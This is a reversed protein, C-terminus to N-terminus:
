AFPTGFNEASAVESLSKRKKIGKGIKRKPYGFPVVALVEYRDPVGVLKRVGELGGFGTWNSGVGEAWAVLIMSQIARSADSVGYDSDREYAVVIAAGANATYRGTKMLAGLERLKERDTVVVFHWPQLNISSATLRGAEVIRHLVDDPISKDQFERVALVTKAADYVPNAVVLNQTM